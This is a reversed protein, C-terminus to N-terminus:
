HNTHLPPPRHGGLVHDHRGEEWFFHFFFLQRAPLRVASLNADRRKALELTQGRATVEPDLLALM